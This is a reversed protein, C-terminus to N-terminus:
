FETGNVPFVQSNKFKKFTGLSPKNNYSEEGIAFISIQFSGFTSLNKYKL